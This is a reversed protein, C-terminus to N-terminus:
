FWALGLAHAMQNPKADLLTEGLKGLSLLAMSRAQEAASDPKQYYGGRSFDDGFERIRAVAERHAAEIEPSQEVYSIATALFAEANKARMAANIAHADIIGSQAANLQKELIAPVPM